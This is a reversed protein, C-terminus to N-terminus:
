YDSNFALCLSFIFIIFFINFYTIGIHTNFLDRDAMEQNDMDDELDIVFICKKERKNVFVYIYM